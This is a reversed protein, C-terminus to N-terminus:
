LEGALKEILILSEEPRLAQSRIMACRRALAGVESPKAVLTSKDNGEMYVLRENQSTEVLKMPGRLGAHAGRATPMVQLTLNPREACALLHEYQAKMTSADGVQRRLACEELVVDVVCAPKRTLLVARELRAATLHELEEDDLPPFGCRLLERAYAETQILGDIVQTCWSMVSLAEQELQVFGQFYEPYRELRLYKIAVRLIGGANLAKEAADIFEDTAPKACTEVASVAAGTYNMRAGLDNQSLGAATRLLRLVEAFYQAAPSAVKKGQTM